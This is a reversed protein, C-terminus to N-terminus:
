GKRQRARGSNGKSGQPFDEYAAVTIGEQRFHAGLPGDSEVQGENTCVIAETQTVLLFAVAVPNYEIDAGRINLMWAVDDLATLIAVDAAATQGMENRLDRLKEKAAKGSFQVPLHIFPESPAAPRRDGWVEDVLNQDIPSLGIGASELTKRWSRELAVSVVSPDYGVCMDKELEKALWAEITPTEKLRDKMLTWESGLEESAQLFYRGDTWLRASSETIVATGASGTFGSIYARRKDCNRVYESNHADSTPVIYGNVGSVAMLKRLASLAEKSGATPSLFSAMDVCNVLLFM